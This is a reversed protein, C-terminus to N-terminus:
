LFCPFFEIGIYLQSVHNVRPKRVSPELIGECLESPSSFCEFCDAFFGAHM